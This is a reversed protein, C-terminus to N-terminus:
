HIDWFIHTKLKDGGIANGAANYNAANLTQELVPYTFRKPIEGEAASAANAPAMIAPFDLRRWTTWAEFGRNYYGIWAQNGIKEQWTAAATAYNVSPQALYTAADGASGGWYLISSTVANDYHTAATGGVTWGREVAEAQYFEVETYDILIGPLTPDLLITQPTTPDAPDGPSSYDAFDGGQAYPGGVFVGGVPIYYFPRRPDNVSNMYDVFPAAAIFDYRGSTVLDKYLPNTNPQTGLYHLAANDDSSTFVGAAVAQEGSTQALSALGPADSVTIAMRLKLSNGFKQWSAMDGGYIFEADGFSGSTANVKALAANLRAFLDTYITQADDYKPNPHADPDLSESYPVNGFIDVLVSYSYVTLFEIVALKNNKLAMEQATVPNEAITIDHAEKLDRLVDRYLIRFTNDPVNRQLIDYRSEDLYTTETWQQAFLRFDNTNVNTSTMYDVLNKEANGLLSAAPVM